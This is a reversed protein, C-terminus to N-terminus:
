FLDSSNIYNPYPSVQNIETGAESVEDKCDVIWDQSVKFLFTELNINQNPDISVTKPDRYLKITISAKELVKLQKSIIGM